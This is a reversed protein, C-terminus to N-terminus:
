EEAGIVDAVEANVIVDKELSGAAVSDVVMAVALMWEVLQEVAVVEVVVVTVAILVVAGVAIVAAVVGFCQCQLVDAAAELSKLPSPVKRAPSEHVLCPHQIQAQIM